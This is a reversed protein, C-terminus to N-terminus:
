ISTFDQWTLANRAMTVTMILKKGEYQKVFKDLTMKRGGKKDTKIRYGIRRYEDYVKGFITECQKREAPFYKEM